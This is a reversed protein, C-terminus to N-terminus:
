MGAYKAEAEALEAEYRELLDPAAKLPTLYRLLDAMGIIKPKAGGWWVAVLFVSSGQIRRAFWWREADPSSGIELLDYLPAHAKDPHDGHLFAEWNLTSIVLAKPPEARTIPEHASEVLATCLGMLSAETWRAAVDLYAYPVFEPITAHAIGVLQEPQGRLFLSLSTLSQNEPDLGYHATMLSLGPVDLGYVPFPTLAILGSLDPAFSPPM